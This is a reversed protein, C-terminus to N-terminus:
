VKEPFLYSFGLKRARELPNEHKKYDNDRPNDQDDCFNSKMQNREKTFNTVKEECEAEDRNGNETGEGDGPPIRVSLCVEERGGRREM